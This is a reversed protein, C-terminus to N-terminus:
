LIDLRRFHDVLGQASFYGGGPGAVAMVARCGASFLRQFDEQSRSEAHMHMDVFEIKEYM